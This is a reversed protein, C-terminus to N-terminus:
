LAPDEIGARAFGAARFRCSDCTGCARTRGNYCSWTFEFPVGLKMGLRIIGAKTKRILPAEIRIGRAEVGTRTGLNLATQFAQLFDKRCDPYGSYDIENAGIFVTGAGLTEALSAAFSLFVINRGPVYTSPIKGGSFEQPVAQNKDLLSSGKWPFELRIRHWQSGSKCAIMEACDLEKRHRQGYDFSLAHVGYGKERAVYLAVASDLGGSLLVVALGPSNRSM